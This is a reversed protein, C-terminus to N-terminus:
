RAQEPLKERLGPWLDLMPSDSVVEDIERMAEASLNAVWRDAVAASDRKVGHPDRGSSGSSGGGSSEELFGRMAETMPWGIFGLTEEACARPRVCTDEFLMVHGREYGRTIRYLPESQVRWRLAEFAVESMGELVGEFRRLHACDETRFLARLHEVAAPTKFRVASGGKDGFRCAADVSAFPNRFLSILVPEVVGLVQRLHENPFNVDKILVSSGPVRLDPRGYWEYVGRLWPLWKGLQWTLRLLAPSQRRCSKRVFPPYDVRHQCGGLLEVFSARAAARVEADGLDLGLVREKWAVYRPDRGLFPEYKYVCHEHLSLTRSVWTTGSRGRGLLWVVEPRRSGGAALGRGAEDDM